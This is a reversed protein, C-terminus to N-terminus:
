EGEEVPDDLVNTTFNADLNDQLAFFWELIPYRYTFLALAICVTVLLTCPSMQYTTVIGSGGHFTQRIKAELRQKTLAEDVTTM